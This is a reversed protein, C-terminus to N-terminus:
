RLVLRGLRRSKGENSIEDGLTRMKVVRKGKAENEDDKRGGRSKCRGVAPMEVM